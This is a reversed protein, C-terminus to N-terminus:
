FKTSLFNEEQVKHQADREAKDEAISGEFEIAACVPALLCCRKSPLSIRRPSQQLWLILCAKGQYHWELDM